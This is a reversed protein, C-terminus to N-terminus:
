LEAQLDLSLVSRVLGPFSRPDLGSLEQWRALRYGVTNAHVHLEAAAGALTFGHRCFALVAEALSPNDRAVERARAFLPVLRDQSGTLSAPLWVDEFRVVGGTGFALAQDADAISMEAGVLGDRVLGVGLRADPGALRELRALVREAEIGQALVIMLAGHLGCHVVGPLQRAGRQLPDLQGQSWEEAPACFAQFSAAPDFGLERAVDSAQPGTAGGGRLLELLRQRLGVEYGHRAGAEAVYADVVVSCMSQIWLWIPGVLEILVEEAAGAVERLRDWLERAVVHFAAVVDYVPLGYYARRRSAQQVARLQAATPEAGVALSALLTEATDRVTRRHEARPLQAYSPIEGRIRETLEDAIDELRERLVGCLAGREAQGESESM